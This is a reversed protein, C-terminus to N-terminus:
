KSLEQGQLDIYWSYVDNSDLYIDKRRGDEHLLTIRYSNACHVRELTYSNHEWGNRHLLTSKFTSEYDFITRIVCQSIIEHAQKIEQLTVMSKEESKCDIEREICM